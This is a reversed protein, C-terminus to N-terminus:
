LFFWLKVKGIAVAGVGNIAKLDDISEIKHTKLFGYILNASKSSIGHTTFDSIQASLLYKKIEHGSIFNILITEGNSIERNLKVIKINAYRDFGGAKHVVNILKSYKPMEYNGPTRIAGSIYVDLLKSQTEFLSKTQFGSIVGISFFISLIWIFIVKM